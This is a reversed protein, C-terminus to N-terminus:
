IMMVYIFNHEIVMSYKNPSNVTYTHFGLHGHMLPNWLALPPSQLTTEDVELGEVAVLPTAEDVDLGLVAGQLTAEEKISGQPM